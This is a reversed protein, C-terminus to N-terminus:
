RRLATRDRANVIRELLGDWLPLEDDLRVVSTRTKLSPRTLIFAELADAAGLLAARESSRLGRHSLVVFTLFHESPGSRLLADLEPHLEAAPLSDTVLVIERRPSLALNRRIRHVEEDGTDADADRITDFALRLASLVDAAAEDDARAMHWWIADDLSLRDVHCRGLVGSTAYPRGCGDAMTLATCRSATSSGAHGYRSRSDGAFRACTEDGLSLDATVHPEWVSESATSGYLFGGPIAGDRLARIRQASHGPPGPTFIVAIRATPDLRLASVLVLAARKIASLVPNYCGQTLWRRLEDTHWFGTWAFSERVFRPQVACIFYPAAPWTSPDGWAADRAGDASRPRLAPGDPLVLVLDLPQRSAVATRTLTVRGGSTSFPRLLESIFSAELTATIEGTDPEVSYRATIGLGADQESSLTFFRELDRENPHLRAATIARRDAEAELHLRLACWRASDIALGALLIFLPLGCLSQFAISGVQSDVTSRNM